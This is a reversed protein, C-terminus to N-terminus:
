AVYKLQNATFSLHNDYSLLLAFVLKYQTLESDAVKMKGSYWSQYDFGTKYSDELEKYYNGVVRDSIYNFLYRDKETLYKYFCEAIFEEEAM